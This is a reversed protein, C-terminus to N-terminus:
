IFETKAKVKLLESLIKPKPSCLDLGSFDRLLVIESRYTSKGCLKLIENITWTEGLKNVYSIFILTKKLGFSIVSASEKKHPIM